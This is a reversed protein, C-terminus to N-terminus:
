RGIRSMTKVGIPVSRRQRIRGRTGLDAVVAALHRGFIALAQRSLSAPIPCAHGLAGPQGPLRALGQNQPSRGSILDGRRKAQAVLPGLDGAPSVLDSPASLRASEDGRRAGSGEVSTVSGDAGAGAGVRNRGVSDASRGDAHRGCPPAASSVPQGFVPPLEHSGRGPGGQVGQYPEGPRWARLLFRLRRGVRHDPGRHRRLAPQTRRTHGRSQRGRSLPHALDAGQLRVRRVRPLRRRRSRYKLAADIQTPTSLTQLRSNKSLGLVFSLNHRECFRLVRANGFGCDARLTIHIPPFRARLLRLAGRLLAFLGHHAAANGPRLLATLLRKQGDAGTVHLLLPLYCHTDYHANFFEFEQQGHCPDPTADVDLTVEKTDEPLLAVAARGLAYAARVLERNGIRNELRSLSPQSPLAEGTVPLRGCAIKLAPDHRLTDLDDADEYGLAIAHVRASVLEELSHKVKKQQRTDDLAGALAAIIGTAQEAQALLLAGADSSLDGGDFAATVAKNRLAPFTLPSTSIM